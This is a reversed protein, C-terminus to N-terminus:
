RGTLLPLNGSSLFSSAFRAMKAARMAKELKQLRDKPLYPSLAHLLNQQENTITSQQSLGALQQFIAPDIRPLSSPDASEQSTTDSSNQGLARAMNMLQEMLQPNGLVANLKDEMSDM